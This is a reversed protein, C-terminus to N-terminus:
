PSVSCFKCSSAGNRYFLKMNQARSRQGTKFHDNIAPKSTIVSAFEGPSGSGEVELEEAGGTSPTNVRSPSFPWYQPSKARKFLIAHAASLAFDARQHGAAALRESEGLQGARKTLEYQPFAARELKGPSGTPKGV